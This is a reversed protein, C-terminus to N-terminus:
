GAEPTRRALEQRRGFNEIAEACSMKPQRSLVARAEERDEKLKLLAVKESVPATTTVM